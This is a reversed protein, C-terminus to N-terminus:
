PTLARSFHHLFVAAAAAVNLSDVGRRMDITARRQCMAIHVPALGQAENGFLIGVRPLPQIDSLREATADLVAAALQVGHLERLAALDRLLNDTHRIPVNFVAGMSVRVTQRWFPDCCQEGLLLGSAGFAAATRIISGLNPSSNLDPCIVLLAPAPSPPLLEDLSIPPKRRGVALVGSHFKYGVVQRMIADDACFFPVAQPVAPSLEAVRRNALLVSEIPFDSAFLRRVLLEGEAIFRDGSAALERDKLCRYDAIRPDDASLITLPQPPPPVDM